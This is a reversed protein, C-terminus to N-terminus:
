EGFFIEDLMKKTRWSQSHEFFTEELVIWGVKLCLKQEVGGGFFFCPVQFISVKWLGSDGRGGPSGPEGYESGWDRIM